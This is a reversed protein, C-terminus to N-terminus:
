RASSWDSAGYQHTGAQGPFRALAPCVSDTDRVAPDIEIRRRVVCAEQEPALM